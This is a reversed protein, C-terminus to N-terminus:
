EFLHINTNFYIFNKNNNNTLLNFKFCKIDNDFQLKNLQHWIATQKISISKIKSNSLGLSKSKMNGNESSNTDGFM